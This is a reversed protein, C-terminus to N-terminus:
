GESPEATVPRVRGLACSAAGSGGIQEGLTRMMLPEVLPTVGVKQVHHTEAAVVRGRQERGRQLKGAFSGPGYRERCAEAWDGACYVGDIVRERHREDVDGSLGEFAAVFRVRFRVIWFLEGRWLQRDASAM